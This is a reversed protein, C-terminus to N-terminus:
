LNWLSSGRRKSISENFALLIEEKRSAGSLETAYGKATKGESDQITIDAGADLLARLARMGDEGDSAAMEVARMLATKGQADKLKDTGSVIWYNLDRTVGQKALEPLVAAGAQLLTDVVKSAREYMKGGCCIWQLFNRETKAVKLLKIAEAGYLILFKAIDVNGKQAAFLLATSERDTKAEKNAGAEILAKVAETKEYYAALLLATYGDPTKAEIDAGAEILAELAEVEGKSAALLLATNGERNSAEKDAEAKILAKVTEVEGKSAALLLATNGEENRAEIDVRAEILAKVTEVEGKSAALLLATNGERNSAEKDAEAKILAKVTEVEGKSAALLLATNDEENRAEIDARERILAKVAEVEGESAAIMLATNGEENAAEISAEAEILAGIMEVNGSSAAIILATNGYGDEIHVDAKEAILINAAEAHGSRVALMLATQGSEKDKANINGGAEQLSRLASTQNFAVALLMIPDSWSPPWSSREKMEMAFDRLWAGAVEGANKEAGLLEHVREVLAHLMRAREQTNDPEIKELNDLLEKPSIKFFSSTTFEQVKGDQDKIWLLDDRMLIHSEGAQGLVVKSKKDYDIVGLEKFQKMFHRTIAVPRKAGTYAMESWDEKVPELFHHPSVEGYETSLTRLFINLKDFGDKDIKNPDIKQQALYDEIRSRFQLSVDMALRVPKLTALMHAKCQALDAVSINEDYVSISPDERKEVGMKDALKNYYVNGFHIEEIPLYQHTAMVHKLILQNMMDKKWLHMRGM